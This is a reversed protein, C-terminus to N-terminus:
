FKVTNRKWKKFNRKSMCEVHNRDQICVNGDKYLYIMTTYTKGNRIESYALTDVKEIIVPHSNTFSQAQCTSWYLLSIFTFFVLVIIVKRIM